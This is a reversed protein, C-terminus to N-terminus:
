IFSNKIKNWWYMNLKSVGTNKSIQWLYLQGVKDTGNAKYWNWTSPKPKPEEMKCTIVVSDGVYSVIPKDRVEGVQPALPGRPSLGHSFPM